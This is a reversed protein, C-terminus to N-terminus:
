QYMQSVLYDVSYNRKHESKTSNYKQRKVDRGLLNLELMPIALYDQPPLYHCLCQLPSIPRSANLVHKTNFGAVM